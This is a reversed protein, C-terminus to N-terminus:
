SCPQEKQTQTLRALDMYSAADPYERLLENLRSQVYSRCQDKTYVFTVCGEAPWYQSSTGHCRWPNIRFEHYYTCPTDTWNPDKLIQLCMLVVNDSPILSAATHTLQMPKDLDLLAKEEETLEYDHQSLRQM